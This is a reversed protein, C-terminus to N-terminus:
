DIVAGSRRAAADIGYVRACTGGLIAEREDAGLGKGYDMALGMAAAYDAALTCVPWDSGIMLREAGFAEFVVDLYPRFDEAKWSEWRAETVMGSLKCSVNGCEALARVDREWPEMRAEAIAPKAIHDLVFTQAPFERVLRVAAPLQRPYVLVDYALGYEALRAIGRRFDARLMFEDDAEDQVMHRVGVLRAHRGFRELQEPLEASCLDVWGVVGRVFDNKEALELLWRTGELSQRAQVAICGDFENAALLPKLDAPLFDRKLAAMAETMWVHEASDYQWFHQHADLRMMRADIREPWGDARLVM